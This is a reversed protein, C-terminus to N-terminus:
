KLGHNALITQVAGIATEADTILISADQTPNNRIVAEAADLAAKADKDAAILQADVSADKCPTAAPCTPLLHYQVLPALVVADYDARIEFFTATPSAAGCAAVVSAATAATIASILSTAPATPPPEDSGRDKANLVNLALVDIAKYIKGYYTSASPTPTLAAIASAATVVHTPDALLWDAAMSLLSYLM